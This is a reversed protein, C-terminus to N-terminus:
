KSATAWMNLYLEFYGFCLKEMAFGAKGFYWGLLPLTYAFVHEDIEEKSVLNLKAMLHLLNDSWAAPTTVMVMGGPQLIRYIDSFLAVL